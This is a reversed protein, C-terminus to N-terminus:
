PLSERTRCVFVFPPDSVVVLAQQPGLQCLDVSRTHSGPCIWVMRCADQGHCDDVKHSRVPVGLVVGVVLVSRRICHGGLAVGVEFYRCSHDHSCVVVVNRHGVKHCLSFAEAEVSRRDKYGVVEAVLCMVEASAERELPQDEDYRYGGPRDRRFVGVVFLAVLRLCGAFVVPQGNLVQPPYMCVMMSLRQDWRAAAM